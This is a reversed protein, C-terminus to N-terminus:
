NTEGAARYAVVAILFSGVAWALIPVNLLHPGLTGSAQVNTLILGLRMLAAVALTSFLVGTLTGERGPRGIDLAVTFASMLAIAWAAGAIGQAILLPGLSPARVSAVLAVVGIAGSAAMVIAGGFRMPMIAAPLIALNFGIWFVPMLKALDEPRAFRLYSTASNIAFHVQFGLAFLLVALGFLVVTSPSYSGPTSGSVPRPPTWRREAFALAFVFLAVGLSSVAFPIRADYQRLELSLYPAIASAIGFGLMYLAAMWPARSAVTHRGVLALPPARLASSSASWVVTLLLFAWAGLGPAIWPMAIFAACSVLTAMAITGGITGVARGVRDAYVGAYWDCAIFIAQDMMLIWPVFRRDIGASAALQPLYIVYVVWTLAFFFQLAALLTGPM